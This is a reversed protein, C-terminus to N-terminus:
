TFPLRDLGLSSGSSSAAYTKLLVHHDIPEEPPPLEGWSSSSLEFKTPDTEVVSKELAVVPQFWAKKLPQELIPSTIDLKINSIPPPVPEYEPRDSPAHNIAASTALPTQAPQIEPYVEKLDPYQLESRLEEEILDQISPIEDKDIKVWSSSTSSADEDAHVVPGDFPLVPASLISTPPKEIPPQAPTSM